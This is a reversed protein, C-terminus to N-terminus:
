IRGRRRVQSRSCTEEYKQAETEDDPFHFMLMEPKKPDNLSNFSTM